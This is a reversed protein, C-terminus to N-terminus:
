FRYKLKVFANLPRIQYSQQSTLNADRVIVTYRKNNFLNLFSFELDTHIASMFYTISADLFIVQNTNGRGVSTYYHEAAIKGSLKKDAQIIVSAKQLSSFSRQSPISIGISKNDKEATTSISMSGEYLTNLWANIKTSLKLGPVYSTTKFPLFVGNLYQNRQSAILRGTLTVTTKLPIFYKAISAYLKLSAIGNQFSIQNYKSYNSDIVSYGISNNHSYIYEAGASYFILNLPINKTFDITTYYLESAPLLGGRTSIDRYSTQIYGTYVDRLDGFSISRGSNINVLGQKTLPFRVSVSPLWGNWRNTQQGFNGDKFYSTNIIKYLLRINTEFSNKKYDLATEIYYATRRWNLANSFSDPLNTYSNDNQLVNLQSLLKKRDADIGVKISPAFRKLLRLSLYNRATLAPMGALQRLGNFLVGNNYFDPHLGPSYHAVQPVDTYSVNSFLDAIAKGGFQKVIRFQHVINSLHYSSIEKGDNTINSQIQSRDDAFSTRFSINQTLYFNKANTVLSIRPNFVTQNRIAARDSYIMISDGPLYYTSHVSSQQNSKEKLFNLNIKIDTVKTLKFLTNLNILESENMFYRKKLLPVTEQPVGTLLQDEDNANAGGFHSVIDQAIDDGNNNAKISNVFKLKKSFVFANMTANYLGPLGAAISGEAILKFKAKDKLVINLGATNSWEIDALARVPQHNQLVQVSSVMNNPLNNSLTNYNGDVLNDGDIYFRNIPRGQYRIQGNDDIEIGPIKKIIDAVVRDEPYALSDANYVLTDGKQRLLPKSSYVTAQKLEIFSTKLIFHFPAANGSVAITDSYYGIANAIIWHFQVVLSDPLSFAFAGNVDSVAFALIDGKTGACLVTASFIATGSSDKVTGSYFKQAHVSIGAGTLTILM